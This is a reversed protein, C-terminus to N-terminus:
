DGEIQTKPVEVRKRPPKNKAKKVAKEMAEARRKEQRILKENVEKCRERVDIEQVRHSSKPVGIYLSEGMLVFHDVETWEVTDNTVFIRWNKIYRPDLSACFLNIYDDAQRASSMKRAAGINKSPDCLGNKYIYVIM